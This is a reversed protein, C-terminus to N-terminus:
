NEDDDYLSDGPRLIMMKESINISEIYESIAPVLIEDGEPNRIVYVDNAPMILVDIVNGIFQDNRYVRSGIIDHVFYENESLKVLNESDVYVKLGILFQVDKDTKFNRFKLVFFDNVKKVEEVFFEKKDGFVEIYVKKLEFFREPFDSYSKIRIFGNSDYVSKLEAILFYESM